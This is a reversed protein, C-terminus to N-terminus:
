HGGARKKCRSQLHAPEHYLPARASLGPPAYIPLRLLGPVAARVAPIAASDPRSVCDVRPASADPGDRCCAATPASSRSVGSLSARDTNERGSAREARSAPPTLNKQRTAGVKVNPMASYTSSSFKPSTAPANPVTASASVGTNMPMTSANISFIGICSNSVCTNKQIRM